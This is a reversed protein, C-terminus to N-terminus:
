PVQVSSTHRVNRLWVTASTPRVTSNVVSAIEGELSGLDIQDRMRGAFSAVVREGDYRARDFRRDVARQVKRRVPQFLALAILTSGAVSITNDHTLPALVTELAAVGAILMVGLIGTVIAWGITRSVIRDIEYLRYRLVALGVALPLLGMSGVELLWGYEAMPGISTSGIWQLALFAVGAWGLLRLQQRGVVDAGRYRVVVSAIAVACPVALLLTVLLAMTDASVEAIELGIPNSLGSGGMAGPTVAAIVTAVTISAACLWAVGRWRPSPLRGDPFLLLLFAGVAGITPTITYQGIFAIPVTLPLAGEFSLTSEAAYVGGALSVAAVTATVLLIWGLPNGPIRAGLVAGVIGYAAIVGVVVPVAVLPFEPALALAVVMAIDIAAVLWVVAARPRTLRKSPQTM